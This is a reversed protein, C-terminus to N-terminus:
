LYGCALTSGCRPVSSVRKAIHQVVDSNSTQCGSLKNATGRRSAALGRKATIEVTFPKNVLVRFSHIIKSM